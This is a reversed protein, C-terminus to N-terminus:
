VDSNRPCRRQPYRVCGIMWKPDWEAACLSRAANIFATSAICSRFPGSRSSVAVRLAEPICGPCAFRQHSLEKRLAVYRNAALWGPPSDPRICRCCQRCNPFTIWERGPCRPPPSSPPLSDLDNLIQTLADLYKLLTVAREGLQWAESRDDHYAQM